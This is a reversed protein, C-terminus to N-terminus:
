RIPETRIRSAQPRSVWPAEAFATWDYTYDSIRDDSGLRKDLFLKLAVPTIEVGGLDGRDVMSSARTALKEDESQISQFEKDVIELMGALAMFRRRIERPIATVSKYNIDHEIEAWAHQLITRVQVEAIAQAFRAYEPLGARQASLRVLYHISQYGFREDEILGKAKDSREVVEFEDHILRHVDEVTAPFYTVIRVGALDTIQKLPDSYKPVNPDADSPISAKAGFSQAAKARHSVSQVKIRRQELCLDLVRAVVTALDDYYGRVGLYESMASAKHREFDFQAATTYDDSM